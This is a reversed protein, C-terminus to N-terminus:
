KGNVTLVSRFLLLYANRLYWKFSLLFIPCLLLIYLSIQLRARLFSDPTKFLVSAMWYGPYKNGPCMWFGPCLIGHVNYDWGFINLINMLKLKCKEINPYNIQHCKKCFRRFFMSLSIGVLKLLTCCGFAPRFICCM